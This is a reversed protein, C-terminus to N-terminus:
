THAPFLEAIAQLTEASLVKGAASVNDDVQAPKSAGIIVSSLAPHRLCWALALQSMSLGEAQALPILKQVQELQDDDITMFRNQQPDSARSGAPLPTGPQYKGTLIGQELPSFNIIGIGERQCLPLIEAEIGRELINYHPQNSVIASLGALRTIDAAHAIQPASWQSVGYYLIQGQRVLHDFAM